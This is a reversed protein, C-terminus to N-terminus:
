SFSFFHRVVRPLVAVYLFFIKGHSDLVNQPYRETGSENKQPAAKSRRFGRVKKNFVGGKM